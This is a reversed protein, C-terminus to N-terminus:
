RHLFQQLSKEDKAHNHTKKTFIENEPFYHEGTNLVSM